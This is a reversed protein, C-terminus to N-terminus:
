TMGPDYATGCVVAAPGVGAESRRDLEGRCADLLASRLEWDHVGNQDWDLIVSSTAPNLGAVRTLWLVGAEHQHRCTRPHNWAIQTALCGMPLARAFSGHILLPSARELLEIIRSLGGDTVHPLWCSRFEALTSPSPM